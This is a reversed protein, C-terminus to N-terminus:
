VGERQTITSGPLYCQDPMNMSGAPMFQPADLCYEAEHGAFVKFLVDFAAGTLACPILGGTSYAQNPYTIM